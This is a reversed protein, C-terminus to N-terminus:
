PIYRVRERKVAIPPTTYMPSNSAFPLSEHGALEGATCISDM